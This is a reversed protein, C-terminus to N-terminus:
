NLPCGQENYDEFYDKLGEYDGDPHVDNFGDIVEDVTLDYSVGPSSANLLAAVTHRGLANLHGGGQKLVELLTKGPFADEFFDSFLTEPTYPSTWSDFHHGQKWYGPTCGQGGEEEEITCDGTCGDGDINNGDDCEEEPDLNGDGCFTCNDRCIIDYDGVNFIADPPDCTEGDVNLEGDGCFPEVICEASCGDGDVNNGDDCQEGPDLTGDGCYPEPEITCNASCGDGPDLNGDDCEEGPDVNGDGCFPEVVEVAYANSPNSLSMGALLLAVMSFFICLYIFSFHRNGRNM